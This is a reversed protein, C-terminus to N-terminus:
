EEEMVNLFGEFESSRQSTWKEETENRYKALMYGPMEMPIEGKEKKRMIEHWWPWMINPNKSRDVGYQQDALFGGLNILALTGWYYRTFWMPHFFRMKLGM